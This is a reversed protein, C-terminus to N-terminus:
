KKLQPLIRKALQRGAQALANKCAIDLSLAPVTETQRDIMVIKGDKGTVKIEVRAQGTFFAGIRGGNVGFAEGNISFDAEVANDVLKFGVKGLIVQLETQVAPDPVNVVDEAVRVFVKTGSIDGLQKKLETILDEQKLPAPLLKKSRSILLKAVKEGLEEALDTGTKKGSVSCGVVKSTEVGIIKAIVYTKTSAKFVSGTIIIKAGSLQGIKNQSEKSVLGSANLQLEDLIKNLNERSVMSFLGKMELSVLLLDAIQSGQGKVAMSKAKFPLIAITAALPEPEEVEEVAEADKESKNDASFLNFSSNFIFLAVFFSMLHRKKM